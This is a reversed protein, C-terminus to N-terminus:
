RWSPSETSSADCPRSPGRAAAGPRTRALDNWAAPALDAIPVAHVAGVVLPAVVPEADDALAQEVVARFAEDDVTVM